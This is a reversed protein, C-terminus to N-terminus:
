ATEASSPVFHTVRKLLQAKKKGKEKQVHLQVTQTGGGSLHIRHLHVTSGLPQVEEEEAEAARTGHLHHHLRPRRRYSARPSGPFCAFTQM